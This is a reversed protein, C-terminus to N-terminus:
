ALFSDSDSSQRPEQSGCSCHESSCACYGPQKWWEDRGKYLDIKKLPERRAKGKRTKLGGQSDYWRAQRNYKGDDVYEVIARVDEKASTPELKRGPLFIAGAVLQKFDKDSEMGGLGGGSRKDIRNEGLYPYLERGGVMCNHGTWRYFNGGAEMLIRSYEQDKRLQVEQETEASDNAIKTIREDTTQARPWQIPRGPLQDLM